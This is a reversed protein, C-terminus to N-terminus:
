RALRSDLEHVKGVIREELSEHWYGPHVTTRFYRMAGGAEYGGELLVRKSPIYAMVDNSYGAVWVQPSKLERKLRLSYDVVTEGGLAVLTLQDGFRVVQVPFPYSERLKGKANLEDLLAEAYSKAFRDKSKTRELLEERSPPPAYGLTVNEYASKLPGVLTTPNAILAAEVATALSRGHKKALDLTRRPYPNQDAGCGTMFLATVGPHDAEFYEQAYGAYDGNWQLFGLTTNHCAYGFLVARMKKGPGDVRLVPVDHDVPGESYPSNIFGRETPLRRNMAFGCRAKGFSLRAPSLDKLAEDILSNLKAELWEYYAIMTEPDSPYISRNAAQRTRLEPGSHTHSCNMLLASPPLQHRKAIGAELSDRLPRPVSILDMTVIVLRNGTEDEVALAKAFLDQEKGEAGSKRGAYGAMWLPKDPTVVMRAVGAKWALDQAFTGISFFGITLLQVVLLRGSAPLPIRM